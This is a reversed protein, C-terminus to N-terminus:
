LEGCRYGLGRVTRIVGRGLKRRVYHVYTDVVNESDADDFVRGLLDRRSFVQGPRGALTALLTAERESLATERGAADIVVRAAVDLRGNGLRLSPANDLHRRLLARVRALLEDIDFPKGLYDEAGADLGAVREAPAGLASLVLVPTRVGRRRLARLLELGEVAPLGRDIVMADWDRTLGLHLGQQGDPALTAAYGAGGLLRVLMRGLEADDEVVLVTASPLASV